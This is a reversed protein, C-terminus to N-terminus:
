NAQGLPPHTDWRERQGVSGTHGEKAGTSQGPLNQM